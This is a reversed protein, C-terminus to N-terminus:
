SLWSWCGARSDCGRASSKQKITLPEDFLEKETILPEDLLENQPMRGGRTPRQSPSWQVADGGLTSKSSLSNELVQENPFPFIYDTAQAGIQLDFRSGELNFLGSCEL